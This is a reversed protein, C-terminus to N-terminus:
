KPTSLIGDKDEVLFGNEILIKAIGKEATTLDGKHIGMVQFAIEKLVKSPPNKM